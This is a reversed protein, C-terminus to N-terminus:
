MHGLGRVLIATGLLLFMIAALALVPLARDSTGPLLWSLVFGLGVCIAGALVAIWLAISDM